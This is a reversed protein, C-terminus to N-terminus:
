TLWQGNFIQHINDANGRYLALWLGINGSHTIIESCRSHALCAAMFNAGNETRKHKPVELFIASDKKSMHPTEQFYITNSPFEKMFAHLFETEDPQILFVVGPRRVMVESAKEIFADYSPIAMERSKDNGRFFVSVLNSYDLRYNSGYNYALNSIHQSPKFYKNIIPQWAEFPLKSYPAFQISMCDYPLPIEGKYEIPEAGEDFFFPILNQGPETKFHLYQNWRDVRDPFRKHKNAYTIIDMLAITNCSFFGANHIIHLESMDPQPQDSNNVASNIIEYHTM